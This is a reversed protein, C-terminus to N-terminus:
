GVGLSVGPFVAAHDGPRVAVRLGGPLVGAGCRRVNTTRGHLSWARQESRCSVVAVDRVSLHIGHRAPDPGGGTGIPSVHAGSKHSSVHVAAPVTGPGPTGTRYAVIESRRFPRRGTRSDAGADRGLA